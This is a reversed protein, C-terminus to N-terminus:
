MGMRKCRIGIRSRNNEHRKESESSLGVALTGNYLALSQALKDQEKMTQYAAVGLSILGTVVAAVGVAFVGSMLSSLDRIKGGWKSPGNKSMKMYLEDLAGTMGVSKALFGSVANGAGVFGDVLLGGVGKVVTLISPLMSSFAEKVTKGFDAAAVGSLQFMDNIQAGQQLLVTLPSQGSWLSV